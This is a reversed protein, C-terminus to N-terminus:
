WRLDVWYIAIFINIFMLIIWIYAIINKQGTTKTIWSCIAIFKNQWLTLQDVELITPKKLFKMKSWWYM